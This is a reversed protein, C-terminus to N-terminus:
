TIVSFFILILYLEILRHKKRIKKHIILILCKIGVTIDKSGNNLAETQSKILLISRTTSSIKTFIGHIFPSGEYNDPFKDDRM